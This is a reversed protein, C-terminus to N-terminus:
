FSVIQDFGVDRGASVGTIPGEYNSGGFSGANVVIDNDSNILSGIINTSNFNLGNNEIALVYSENKNLTFSFPGTITTGDTLVTGTPINSITINTGNEVALISAFNMLGATNFKNLMAGIRFKKGLASNGKSVLGGAQNYAGANTRLSTYILDEAEVIYGKNNLKGIITNPTFIQTDNGSGITYIWPNNKNISRTFVRGGIEIVKVKVDLISPTSIYLYHDQPAVGASTGSTLPPIYHTKSFQAFCGISLFTFLILITKKM